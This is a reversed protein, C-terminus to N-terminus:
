GHTLKEASLLYFVQDGLPLSAAVRWGALPAYFALCLAFIFLPPASFRVTWWAAPILRLAVVAVLVLGAIDRSIGGLSLVFLAVVLACASVADSRLRRDPWGALQGAVISLASGAITAFVIGR